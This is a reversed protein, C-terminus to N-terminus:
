KGGYERCKELLPVLGEELENIERGTYGEVTKELLEIRQNLTEVEIERRAVYGAFAEVFQHFVTNNGAGGLAGITPSLGLKGTQEKVFDSFAKYDKIGYKEMAEFVGYRKVYQLVEEKNGNFRKEYSQM